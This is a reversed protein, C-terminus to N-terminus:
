RIQKEDRDAVVPSNTLSRAGLPESSKRTNTCHLKKKGRSMIKNKPKAKKTLAKNCVFRMKWKLAQTLVLTYM